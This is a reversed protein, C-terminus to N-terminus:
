VCNKPSELNPVILGNSVCYIALKALNNYGTKTYISSIHAKLTRISINLKEATAERDLLKCYTTLVKLETNTLKNLINDKDSFNKENPYISYGELTNKLTVVLTEKSINKYIFSDVKFEKADKVFNLDLIGTMIVVKIDPFKEKILKSYALGNSNNETCIDMLILDPKLDECLQISDKANGSTAIINFNGELSLTESIMDRLMKHDDIIIINYM